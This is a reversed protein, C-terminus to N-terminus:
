LRIELRSVVDVGSRSGGRWARAVSGVACLGADSIGDRPGAAAGGARGPGGCQVGPASYQPRAAVGGGRRKKGRPRSCPLHTRAWCFVKEM